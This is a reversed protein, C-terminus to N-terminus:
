KRRLESEEVPRKIYLSPKLKLDITEIEDLRKRERDFAVSLVPRLPFGENTALIRCIEGTNIEVWSGVPYIGITEILAKVIRSNFMVDKFSIAEKVADAPSLMKDRYPRKHIIAEYIDALALIQAYESIDGRSIGQPYGEGNIREHHSLVGEIVEQSFDTLNKIFLAGREPHEKIKNLEEITLKRPEKLFDMDKFVGVEHFLGTIIVEILKSKNYNLYSSIYGALIGTNVLDFIRYDEDNPYPESLLRLLEQGGLLIHDAIKGAINVIFDKEIQKGEVYGAAAKKCFEVTEHYINQGEGKEPITKKVIEHIYAKIPKEPEKHKMAEAFTVHDKVYDVQKGEEKQREEPRQQPFVEKPEEKPTGQTQKMKKLIDSIRVM